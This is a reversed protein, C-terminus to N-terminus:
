GNYTLVIVKETQSDVKYLRSARLGVVWLIENDCLLIPIKKKKDIPIKLDTFLDSVLKSGTTGFPKFRDGKEWPRLTFKHHDIGITYDLYIAAPDLNGSQKMDIFCDKSIVHYNFPLATLPVARYQSDQAIVTFNNSQFDKKEDPITRLYGRDLILTAIPSTFWKGSVLCKGSEDIASIINTVHTMNFGIPSILEYLVMDPHPESTVIASLDIGRDTTVYRKRLHEIADTYLRYNGQLCDITRNISHIAGPFQRELEPLIINRIKNRRYDNGLNTSDTVYKLGLESLYNEIDDRTCDLLPRIISGSKPLMAKLGAIGCGRLMNLFFTEINDEMHHGVALLNGVQSRMLESWWDYRLERCAMEISINKGIRYANVDFDKVVLKVSITDCLERCFSEDRDSEAGRLHFNCHTAVFKYGLENLVSLLAVSDAGGSLGVILTDSHTLLRNSRIFGNIHSIFESRM